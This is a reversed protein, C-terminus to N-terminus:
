GIKYKRKIEARLKPIIIDRLFMDFTAQNLGFLDNGFNATLVNRKADRNGFTFAGSKASSKKVFMASAFAGTLILDVHGGALPNITKKYAAYHPNKYNRLTGNSHINGMEMEEYKLAKLVDEHELILQYVLERLESKNIRQLRHLYDKISLAM